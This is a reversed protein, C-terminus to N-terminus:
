APVGEPTTSKSGVGILRPSTFAKSRSLWTVVPRTFFYAVVVDLITSLGLFFAFGRVPGVTLWYLLAAGMFSSVDATLITRFARTFGKEVSSRMTKGSRVEDKLREFFVVYSDVTVGISVIIGTVGALSLALGRTEGLWAIIAWMYTFSVFLGLLVVVGLARYYLIMYLAVLAVGVLGAILGARLSDEGLSASVTRVTQQQLEVPLSGYRLVLALDKAESEGFNGTIQVSDLESGALDQQLQPASQVVGDLEIALPQGIYKDVIARFQQRGEGTFEVVVEWGTGGSQVLQARATRVGRGSMESPGLIYRAVEEDGDFEALVVQKDAAIEERPTLETPDIPEGGTTTSTPPATTSTTAQQAAQVIRADPEGAAGETTSPAPRTSPTSGRTTSSSGGGTTSTADPPLAGGPPLVQLVPRFQLEATQGVIELARQQDKVGPLQVVISDGQRAIEPEAVGLADVRNRIIEIAQDLSDDPVEEAPELVVSAGGQLDLGLQPENNALVNATVALVAVIIIGFLAVKLSRRM